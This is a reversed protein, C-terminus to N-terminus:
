DSGKPKPVETAKGGKKPGPPPTPSGKSTPTKDSDGCGAMLGFCGCLVLVSLLKRVARRGKKKINFVFIAFLERRAM